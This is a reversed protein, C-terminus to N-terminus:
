GAQPATVPAVPAVASQRQMDAVIRGGYDFMFKAMQLFQPKSMVLRCVTERRQLTDTTDIGLSYFNIKVGVESQQIGHVGDVYFEPDGKADGWLEITMGDNEIEYIKRGSM